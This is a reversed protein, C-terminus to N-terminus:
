QDFDHNTANNYAPKQSLLLKSIIETRYLGGAHM